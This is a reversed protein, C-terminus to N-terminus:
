NRKEHIYETQVQIRSRTPTILQRGRRVCMRGLLREIQFNRAWDMILGILSRFAKKKNQRVRSRYALDIGAIQQALVAQAPERENPKLRSGDTASHSAGVPVFIRVSSM